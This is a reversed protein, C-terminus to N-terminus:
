RGHNIVKARANADLLMGAKLDNERILLAAQEFKINSIKYTRILKIASSYNTGSLSFSLGGSQISTIQFHLRNNKLVKLFVRFIYPDHGHRGIILLGNGSKDLDLRIVNGVQDPGIWVGAIDERSLPGPLKTGNANNIAVLTILTIGFVFMNLRKLKNM